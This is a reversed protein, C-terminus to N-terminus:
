APVAAPRLSSLAAALAALQRAPDCLDAARAPGRAGLERRRQPESLLRELASILGGRDGPPVLIGCAATVIERPGGMDTAVVPLGAYLAEVFVLGFPEPQTNPQCHLDAAQMLAPVDTREGLFTVRGAIGLAQAQRRVTQEYAAEAARQAGGAIWLRWPARVAALAALLDQHGKWQEFRSAAVVVPTNDRVGLSERLRAREVPALLPVAPVPAHIVLSTTTPFMRPACAQTFASTAIVLDPAFRRAWREVLTHGSVRDHLWFALGVGRRRAVPAALAFAWASHGVIVDPRSAGIARALARRARAVTWPARLRAAGLRACPVGAADLEASLRGEFCVAALPEMSPALGRSAACQAVIREIGGYLNGACVHLVRLPAVVAVV